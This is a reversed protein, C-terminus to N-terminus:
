KTIKQVQEPTLVQTIQNIRDLLMKKSADLNAHAMADVKDVLKKQAPGKDSAGQFEDWLKKIEARDGAPPDISAPGSGFDIKKLKGLQEPTIAWAKAMAPDQMIRFRGSVLNIQQQNLGLVGRQFGFSFNNGGSKDQMVRMVGADGTVTWIPGQKQIRPTPMLRGRMNVPQNPDINVENRSPSAGFLFWYVIGGGILLCLVMAGIGIAQRTQPSM